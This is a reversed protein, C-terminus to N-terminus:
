IPVRYLFEGDEDYFCDDVKYLVGEKRLHHPVHIKRQIRDHRGFPHQYGHQSDYIYLQSINGKESIDAKLEITESSNFKPVLEPKPEIEEQNTEVPSPTKPREVMKSKIWKQYAEDSETKHKKNNIENMLNMQFQSQTVLTNSYYKGQKSFSTATLLDDVPEEVSSSKSGIKVQITPREVNSSYEKDSKESHNVSTEQKKIDVYPKVISLFSTRKTNKNTPVSSVMVESSKPIPLSKNCAAHEPLLKGESWLQKILPSILGKQEGTLIKWNRLVAKDHKRIRDKTASTFKSKLIKKIGDVSIPFSEALKVPTWQEPNLQNLYRIQEKAAWTLMNTEPQQKFYKREVINRKAKKKHTKNERQFEDYIEDSHELVSELDLGKEYSEALEPHTTLDIHDLDEVSMTSMDNLYKNLQTDLGDKQSKIKVKSTTRSGSQKISRKSGVFTAFRKQNFSLSKSLLITELNFMNTQAIKINFFEKKIAWLSHNFRNLLKIFIM